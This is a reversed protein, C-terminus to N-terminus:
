LGAGNFGKVATGALMSTIDWFSAVSSMLSPESLGTAVSLLVVDTGAQKRNGIRGEPRQLTMLVM